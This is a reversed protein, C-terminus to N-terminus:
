KFFHQILGSAIFMGAVWMITELKSKQIELRLDTKAEILDKKTALDKEEIAARANNTAMELLEEMRRAQYKALEENAGFSKSKDVYDLADFHRITIVAM